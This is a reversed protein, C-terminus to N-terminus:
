RRRGGHAKRSHGKKCKHRRKKCHKKKKKKHQPQAFNGGTGQFTPLADVPPAASGPGHCEDSAQCDQRAIPSPFGGGERATYIKITKGNKDSSVLTDRTFFFADVGNASVSLLGSPTASRGTTILAIRGEEWEYVDASSGTDRLALPETSTFFVRGDDSLNLGITSLETDATLSARTTPCSACVVSGGGAAAYRYIAEHGFAPVGTLPVRSSFVAFAGSPAVQFDGFSRKESDLVADAIADNAPELTAVFRPAGDPDAVYLNPQNLSGGDDLVEPSLFYVTGTGRAVGAGGAFGVVGCDNLSAAGVANWNNRLGAAVPNCSNTDGAGPGTSVRTLDLSGDPAVDARFVDASDDHDDLTLPDVSSYLVSSGDGSMGLFLVGNGDGPALDVSGALGAVSMYPHWRDNDASDTAVRQAVVVRSGDDSVDLSAIGDGNGPAHCNGAGQLCTLNAGGPAKSVVRTVGTDLDREYISVDGTTAADDEFASTSGFILHRGDASLARAVYGDPAVAPGPDNTGAMGQSLPGANRRYPLGTKGDEFCPDCIDEGGFVFTSLDESEELPDSAFPPQPPPDGVAIGAYRTTWGGAGRTAVYPDLSHNTPEGGVGPIKGFSMSYLVSDSARPKAALVEQGPILDSRVDYGGADAASVLEYARCDPLLVGLTEKRILANPCPDATSDPSYTRFVDEAGQVEGLANEAVLRYHYSTDPGLGAIQISVTQSGLPKPLAAVPLPARACASLDCDEPGYEVFYTTDGGNPNIQTTLRAGDTNVNGVVVPSISVPGQPRFGRDRGFALIGNGNETVLRYHYKAGQTLGAVIATVAHLGAGSIPAAPVCPATQGYLADTGWEFRCTTADGGGDLDVTGKLTASTPALEPPETKTTPVVAQATPSFIEVHQVGGYDHGNPVYIRQASPGVAVSAPGNLGVFSHAPDPAGFATITEGNQDLEVVETNFEGNQFPTPQLLFVHGSALDVDIGLTLPNSFFSGAGIDYLFNGDADFKKAYSITPGVITLYFNDDADIALDCAGNENGIGIPPIAVTKGTPAGTSSFEAMLARRYDVGWIDGEADVALSCGVRVGGIPFNEAIQTGDPRWGKIVTNAGDNVLVYINGQSAASSNDVAVRPSGEAAYPFATAGELASFPLPDGDPDFQSVSGGLRAPDGVYGKGNSQNIAVDAGAVLTGATSGAGDYYDGTYTYVPVTRASAAAAICLVLAAALLAATAGLKMPRATM